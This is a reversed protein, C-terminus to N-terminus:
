KSKLWRSVHMSNSARIVWSERSRGSPPWSKVHRSGRNNEPTKFVHVIQIDKFNMVEELTTSALKEDIKIGYLEYGELLSDLKALVISDIYRGYVKCSERAVIGSPLASGVVARSRVEVLEDQFKRASTDLAAHKL